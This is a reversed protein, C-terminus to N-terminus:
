GSAPPNELKEKVAKMLDVFNNRVWAQALFIPVKLKPQVYALYTVRTKDGAPEFSWNETLKANPDRLVKMQFKKEEPYMTYELNGGMEKGMFLIFRKMYVVTRNGETEVVELKTCDPILNKLQEFDVLTSYVVQPSADVEAVLRLQFNRGKEELEEVVLGETVAQPTQVPVEAPLLEQSVLVEKERTKQQFWFVGAVIVLVVVIGLPIWVKKSM